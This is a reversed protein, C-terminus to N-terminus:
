GHAPLFYCRVAPLPKEVEDTEWPSGPEIFATGAGVGAIWGRVAKAAFEPGNDSRIHAPVGRAIFLDALADTVDAAGLKRAVRIALAERTFEDVVCLVRFRRGGRTRDEVFDRAWVHDPREPRLRVCPGGALWLRGRELDRQSQRGAIGGVTEEGRQGRQAQHSLHGCFPRQQAEDVVGDADLRAM